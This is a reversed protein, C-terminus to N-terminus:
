WPLSTTVHVLDAATFKLVVHSSVHAGDTSSLSEKKCIVSFDEGADGGLILDLRAIQPLPQSFHFRLPQDTEGYFGKLFEM